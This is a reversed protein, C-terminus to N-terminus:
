AKRTEKELWDLFKRNGGVIPLAVICPCDYSLNKKVKEIVADLLDARTKMIFAVEPSREVKGEWLYVATTPGLINACAVLREEVLIQAIDTAEEQDSATVYVWILSM